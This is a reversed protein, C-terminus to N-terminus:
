PTIKSFMGGDRVYLAMGLKDAAELVAMTHAADKDSGSKVLASIRNGVIEEWNKPNREIQERNTAATRLLMFVSKGGVVVKVRDKSQNAFDAIDGGSFNNTEPHSHAIGIVKYRSDELAQGPVGSDKLIIRHPDMNVGSNSGVIPPGMLGIHGDEDVAILQGYEKRTDPANGSARTRDRLDALQVLAALPLQVTKQAAIPSKPVQAPVGNEGGWHDTLGVATTSKGRGAGDDQQRRGMVWPGASAGSDSFTDRQRRRFSDINSQYADDMRKRNQENLSQMREATRRAEDATRRAQNAAQQAAAARRADDSRARELAAQNSAAGSSGISGAPHFPVGSDMAGRIPGITHSSNRTMQPVRPPPSQSPPFPNRNRAYIIMPPMNLTYERFGSGSM